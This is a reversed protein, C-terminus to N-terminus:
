PLMATKVDSAFGDSKIIRYHVHPRMLKGVPTKYSGPTRVRLTAKGDVVVAAGANEFKGYAEQPSSATTGPQNNPAWYVVRAARPDVAVVVSTDAYDPSAVLLASPPLFTEGLFPLYSDKRIALWIAAVAAAILAWKRVGVPSYRKAIFAMYARDLVVGLVLVMALLRLWM